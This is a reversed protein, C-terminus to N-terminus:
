EDGVFDALHKEVYRRSLGHELSTRSSKELKFYEDTLEELLKEIREEAWDVNRSTLPRQRRAAALERELRSRDARM